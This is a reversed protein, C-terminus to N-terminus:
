RNRFCWAFLGLVIGYCGLATIKMASGAIPNDGILIIIALLLFGIITALTFSAIIYTACYQQTNKKIWLFLPLSLLTILMVPFVYFLLVTLMM